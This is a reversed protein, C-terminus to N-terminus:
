RLTGLGCAYAIHRESWNSTYKNNAEANGTKYRQDISPALSEYGEESIVKM